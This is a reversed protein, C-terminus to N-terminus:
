VHASIHLLLDLRPQRQPGARTSSCRIAGPLSPLDSQNRRDSRCSQYGDPAAETKRERTVWSCRLPQETTIAWVFGALERACAVVIKQPLKGRAAMRSWRRHLRQQCRWSRELVLADQGRKCRHLEPGVAPGRRAHWAAEVLLRRV